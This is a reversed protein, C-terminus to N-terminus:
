AKEQSVKDLQELLAASRIPLTVFFAAGEGVQSELWFNGGHAEVLCKTIPLGLGTGNMHQIGHDTQQFPEFILNHDEPAIGPGTDCVAFMIDADRRKASLTISGQETFKAANSLLNLMIQRIRRKDGVISPLDVDIDQILTVAKDKILTQTAAIVPRLESTLDVNDEVFLHMMGSEIKAIDLVDNILNLLHRASDLSKELADKQRENVAGMMGLSVFETFNLIANLPTRLEHSMSALFQSKIQDARQAQDRAEEATARAVELARNLQELDTSRKRLQEEAEVRETVDRLTFVRGRVKSDRDLLPNINLAFFNPPTEGTSILEMTV